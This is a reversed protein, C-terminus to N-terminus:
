ILFLLKDKPSLKTWEEFLSDGLKMKQMLEKYRGVDKKHPTYVRKPLELGTKAKFSRNLKGNVRFIMKSVQLAQEKTTSPDKLFKWIYFDREISKPIDNLENITIASLSSLSLVSITIIKKLLKNL